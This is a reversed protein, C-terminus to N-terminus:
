EIRLRYFQTGIAPFNTAVTSGDGNWPPAAAVWPGTIDPAQEITYLQGVVTIFNMAVAGNAARLSCQSPTIVRLPLTAELGGIDNTIAVVYNGSNTSSVQAMHLTSGTFATLAVGDKHWRFRLPPAGKVVPALIVDAGNTVVLLQPPVVLAPAQPPQNTDLSYNLRASGRAGGVGTVAILYQRTKLVAPQVRSGGAGKGHDCAISILDQYTRPPADYTYVELVTEYSSGATDLTITGDTPPQYMLWYSAGAPVGCHAPEAPDTTAYTTDFIQSGDYGRVVGIPGVGKPTLRKSSGGPSGPIFAPGGSSGILGTGPADPFKSQAEADAGETNIQLEAPVSFFTIGQGVDIELKYRGVNAIQLSPIVLTTNRENDLEAGNFYWKFRTSGTVNTLAVSLTVSAGIQLTSESPTSLITPPPAATPTLNWHLEIEGFAGFYGDVVIEYRHGATVGFAIESERDGLEESDDNRAAEILKDFTTDNTSNFYYASLLTDFGSAETQFRVVGNTPALWSIWLSHGGTKGGAKPEGPELTAHTNNGELSGSAGTFTQRNTFFDQFSQASCVQALGLLALGFILLATTKAVRNM